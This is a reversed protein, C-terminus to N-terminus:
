LLIGEATLIWVQLCRFVWDLWQNCKPARRGQGKAESAVHSTKYPDTCIPNSPVEGIADNRKNKKNIKQKWNGDTILSLTFFWHKGYHGFQNCVSVKEPPSKNGIASVSNLQWFFENGNFLCIQPFKLLFDKMVSVSERKFKLENRNCISIEREFRILETIM